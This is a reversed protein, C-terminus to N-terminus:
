NTKTSHKNNIYNKKDKALLCSRVIGVIFMAGLCILSVIWTPFNMTHNLYGFLIAGVLFVIYLTITVFNISKRNM